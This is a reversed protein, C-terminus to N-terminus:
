YSPGLENQRESEGMEQPLLDAKNEVAYYDATAVNREVTTVREIRKRKRRENLFLALMALSLAGLSAGVGAGVAAVKGADSKDCSAAASVTQSQQAPTAATTSSSASASTASSSISTSSSSSTLLTFADGPTIDLVTGSTKSCTTDTSNGCWWYAPAGSGTGGTCPYLNAWNASETLSRILVQGPQSISGANSKSDACYTVCGDSSWENICAGRYVIGLSGSCLGSALCAEGQSCCTGQSASPDCAVYGQAVGSEFVYTQTIAFACTALFVQPIFYGLM